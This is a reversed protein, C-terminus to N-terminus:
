GRRAVLEFRIRVNMVEDHYRASCTENREDGGSGYTLIIRALSSPM